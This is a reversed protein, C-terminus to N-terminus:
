EASEIRYEIGYHGEEEIQPRFPELRHISRGKELAINQYNKKQVLNHKKDYISVVLRVSRGSNLNMIVPEIADEPGYVIDVNSSSAVTKQFLMRNIYYSLKAHGLFDILPKKYTANNAGGHLPCWSFGDIGHIRQHKMSEWASLAQWAQSEEWESVELKRGISGEDYYWEYSQMHYWPKGKVLNWNPQGISEEHELNFYAREESNLFSRHYSDPFERIENWEKGYGTIQLMNARTIKPATFAETAEIAEGERNVTGEDNGYVMMGMEAAPAILRSPDVPYITEYVQEYFRNCNKLDELGDFPHNSAEWMVISPHNRVQRIYKPLGEFDVGWAESRTWSPTAWAFMVGLQDGIEALRPDNINRAPPNNAWAHNHIRMLNGNMKKIQAIERVLWEKPACRAWTALKDIPARFGFTQAGNLMAPKGNVRFTGGDQSVTRIGTTLVYDDIAQHNTDKLVVHMKYLNPNEATWLKPEPVSITNCFETKQWGQLSINFTDSVSPETTEEPYWPYLDVQLYGEFANDVNRVKINAQMQAGDTVDKTYTFVDSIHLGSTLDLWVRGAYWGIYPDQPPHWHGKDPNIFDDVKIAILNTDNTHLYKGVDVKVPYRKDTDFVLEGNVWIEGGPDLMEAHLEAREYSGTYVKKRLFLEEGTNREGGHVHPLETQKWLTDAYGPQNWGEMCPKLTFDEDLFTEPYFPGGKEGTLFHGLGYISSIKTGKDAVFSFAPIQKTGITQLYVFEAVQRGDVYFNYRHNSLDVEVKLSYWKAGEYNAISSTDGRSTYFIKGKKNFGVTLAAEGENNCLKLSTYGKESPIQMDWELSFRWSQPRISKTFRGKQTFVLARDEVRSDPLAKWWGLKKQEEERQGEKYGMWRWGSLRKRKRIEPLPQPKLKKMLEEVDSDAVVKNNLKPDNFYRKAYNAYHSLFKIRAENNFIENPGKFDTVGNAESDGTFYRLEFSESLTQAQSIGPLILIIFALLETLLYLRKQISAKM